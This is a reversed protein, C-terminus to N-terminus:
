TFHPSDGSVLALMRAVMWLAYWIAELSTFPGTSRLTELSISKSFVSVMLSGGLYTRGVGM